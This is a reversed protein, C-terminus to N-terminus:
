ILVYLYTIQIPQFSFPLLSSLCLLFFFSLSPFPLPPCSFLSLVPFLLLPSFIFPSPSFSWFLLSIILKDAHQVKLINYSCTVERPCNHCLQLIKFASLNLSFSISIFFGFDMKVKGKLRRSNEELEYNRCNGKVQKLKMIVDKNM